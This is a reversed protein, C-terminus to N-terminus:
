AWGSHTFKFELTFKNCNCHKRPKYWAWTQLFGQYTNRSGNNSTPNWNGLDSKSKLLRSWLVRCMCDNYVIRCTWEIQYPCTFRIWPRDLNISKQPNHRTFRVSYYNLSLHVLRYLADGPGRIIPNSALDRCPCVQGSVTKCIKDPNDGLRAFIKCIQGSLLDLGM